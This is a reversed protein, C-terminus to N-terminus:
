LNKFKKWDNVCIDFIEKACIPNASQISIKPMEKNNDACFNFLFKACDIGEMVEGLDNDFSIQFPLGRSHITFCFEEFTKVWIIPLDLNSFYCEKWTLGGSFPKMSDPNRIDDLWLNYM